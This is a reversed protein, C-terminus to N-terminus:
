QIALAPSTVGLTDEVSAFPSARAIHRSPDADPGCRAVAIASPNAGISKTANTSGFV